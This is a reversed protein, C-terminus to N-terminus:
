KPVPGAGAARPGGPGPPAMSGGSSADWHEALKGNKVRFLNFIYTAHAPEGNMGPLERSTVQTVMDGSAMIALLQAPKRNANPPAPPMNQFSAILGERGNGALANHQIYDAAIYQEVIPRIKEKLNGDVEARNLAAYFDLVVQKNAAEQATAEARAM